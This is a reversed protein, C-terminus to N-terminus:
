RGAIRVCVGFSSIFASFLRFGTQVLVVSSQGGANGYLLNGGSNCLYYHKHPVLLGCILFWFLISGLHKTQLMRRLTNVSRAALNAILVLRAVDPPRAFFAL